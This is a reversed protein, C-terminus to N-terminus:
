TARRTPISSHPQGSRIAGAAYHNWIESVVVLSSLRRRPIASFNGVRVMKGTLAHHLGKYAAYFVRFARSESRRTREAFVIRDHGVEELRELLRPVDAPDDEGDGDMVVVARAPLCEEAYALGVAIARQHGLNRKLRLVDVRRLAAFERDLDHDAPDATSG